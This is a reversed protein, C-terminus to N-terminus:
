SQEWPASEQGERTVFARTAAGLKGDVGEQMAVEDAGELKVGKQEYGYGPQREAEIGLAAARAIWAEVDAEVRWQEDPEEQGHDEEPPEQAVDEVPLILSRIARVKLEVFDTLGIIVADLSTKCCDGLM